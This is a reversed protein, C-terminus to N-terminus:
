AIQKLENLLNQYVTDNIDILFENGLIITNMRKMIEWRKKTPYENMFSVLVDNPYLTSLHCVLIANINEDKSFLYEKLSDFRQEFTKLLEIVEGSYQSTVDTMVERRKM